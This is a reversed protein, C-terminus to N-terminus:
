FGVCNIVADVKNKDLYKFVEHTDGVNCEGRTPRLFDGEFDSGVMGTSGLLAIM